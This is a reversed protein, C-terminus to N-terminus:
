CSIPATGLMMVLKVWTNPMYQVDDNILLIHPCHGADNGKHYMKLNELVLLSCRKCQFTHSM